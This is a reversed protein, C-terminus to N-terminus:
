FLSRMEQLPTNCPILFHKASRSWAYNLYIIMNVSIKHKKPSVKLYFQTLLRLWVCPFFLEACSLVLLSWIEQLATYSPVLFHKAPRKWAYIHYMVIIVSIIQKKSSWKLNFHNADLEFAEGFCKSFFNLM